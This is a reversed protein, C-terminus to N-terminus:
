VENKVNKCKCRETILSLSDFNFSITHAPPFYGATRSLRNAYIGCHINIHSATHTWQPNTHSLRTHKRPTAASDSRAALASLLSLQRRKPRRWRLVICCGLRTHRPHVDCSVCAKWVAGRGTGCPSSRSLLFHTDTKCCPMHHWKRNGTAGGLSWINESARLTFFM